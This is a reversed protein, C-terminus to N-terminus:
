SIIKVKTGDIQENFVFEGDRNKEIYVKGQRSRNSSIDEGALRAIKGPKNQYNQYYDTIIRLTGDRSGGDVIIIESPMLHQNMLSELFIEITGAENLVTMIFSTNKLIKEEQM